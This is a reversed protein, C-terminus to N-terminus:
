KQKTPTVRAKPNRLSRPPAPDVTDKLTASWYKVFDERKAMKPLMLQLKRSNTSEGIHRMMARLEDLTMTEGKVFLDYTEGFAESRGMNRYVNKSFDEFKASKQSTGDTFIQSMYQVEDDTMTHGIKAYFSQIQASSLTESKAGAIMQFSSWLHEVLEQDMHEEDVLKKTASRPAKSKWIKTGTDKSDNKKAEVANAEQLKVILKRLNTM